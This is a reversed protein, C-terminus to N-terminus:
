YRSWGSSLPIFEYEDWALTLGLQDSLERARGLGVERCAVDLYSSQRTSDAQEAAKQLMLRALALESEASTDTLAM